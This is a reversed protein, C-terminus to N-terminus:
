ATRTFSGTVPYGGMCSGAFNALGLAILEQNPEYQYRAKAAFKGGVAVTELFGVIAIVAGAMPLTTDQLNGLAGFDPMRFIFGESEVEGVLRVSTIGVHRYIM